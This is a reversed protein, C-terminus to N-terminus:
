LKIDLYISMIAVGNYKNRALLLADKEKSAYFYESHVHKKWKKNCYFM